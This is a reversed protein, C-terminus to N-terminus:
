KDPIWELDSIMQPSLNQLTEADGQGVNQVFLDLINKEKWLETDYTPEWMGVSNSTLDKFKWKNENINRCIGVTVKSGRESDRHVIYVVGKKDVMIQPRSIPIRKTGGGSLSFAM